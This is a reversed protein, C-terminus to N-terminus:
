RGLSTLEGYAHEAEQRGLVGTAVLRDLVDRQRSRAGDFNTLPDYYSPAQPLGALLSAEAWDLAAAPKAFYAQSAAGVGWRGDGFYVANLYMELIQAKSYRMELKLALGVQAAKSMVGPGTGPYIAKALQQTITAGGQDDGSRLSGLLSRAVGVVDVGHHRYFRQDEVAVIARGTRAPAPPGTDSAAHAALVRGVRAEADSVGPLAALFLLGGIVALAIVALAVVLV